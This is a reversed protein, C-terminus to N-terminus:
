NWDGAIHKKFYLVVPVVFYVFNAGHISVPYLKLFYLLVLVIFAVLCSRIHIESSSRYMKIFCGIIAGIFLIMGILGFRWIMQMYGNDIYAGFADYHGLTEPRSGIGFLVNDPLVLDAGLIESYVGTKAKSGSSFLETTSMVASKILEKRADSMQTYLLALLIVTIIILGAMKLINKLKAKRNYFLYVIAFGIVSLLIGTRAAIVSSFTMLAALVLYLKKKTSLAHSFTLVSLGSMIYSFNDLYYGTLGHARYKYKNINQITLENRGNRMVFRLFYNQLGGSFYSLLFFILELGAALLIIRLFDNETIERHQGLFLLLFIVSVSVYFLALVIHSVNYIYASDELSTSSGGIRFTLSAIIYLLFPVFYMLLEFCRIGLSGTKRRILVYAIYVTMGAIAIYTMSISILPPLFICLFCMLCLGCHLFRNFISRM